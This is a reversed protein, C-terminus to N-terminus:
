RLNTFIKKYKAVNVATNKVPGQIILNLKSFDWYKHMFQNIDSLSIQEVLRAYEDPLYIKDEWMLDNEIWDAIGSPHDFSMLVRNIHYNKVFEVEEETPGNEYFIWLEKAIFNLVQNLKDKAVQTDIYAYGLNQYTGNGFSVDYVLGSKQRLLRYLRSSRLGSFISRIISQSIVEKLPLSNWSSPFSITVYVARLKSDERVAIKWNSLFENNFPPFGPFEEKNSYKEFFKKLLDEAERDDFGGILTLYTNNPTFFRRWYQLLNDRTLRSVSDLTGAGDRTFPLGKKFRNEAFFTNNKYWLSDQRERIEALIVNREKEISDESFLPDFFVESGIQFADKLFKAPVSIHFKISQAGTSANYSGALSEVYNSFSEVNPFSPTGQFLIHEMFHAEGSKGDPDFIWGGKVSQSLYVSKMQPISYTAIKLGNRLSYFKLM